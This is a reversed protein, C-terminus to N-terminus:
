VGPLYELPNVTKNNILIEFHLHNGTTRGTRGVCGIKQLQSVSAGRRPLPCSDSLHAYRTKTGDGHDILIYNGYGGNWGSKAEVVRGAKSASVPTNKPAAIDIGAHFRRKGSIPHKRMGYRSSLRGNVPAAFNASSIGNNLDSLAGNSGCSTCPVGTGAESSSSATGASGSVKLFSSEPVSFSLGKAKFSCFGNKCDATFKQSNIRYKTGMHTFTM